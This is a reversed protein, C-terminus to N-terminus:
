HKLLRDIKFYPFAKEKKDLLKVAHDGTRSMFKFGHGSCASVIVVNDRTGPVFDIIFDKDPTSTYLCTLHKILEMNDNQIESLFQKAIRKINDFKDVRFERKVSSQDSYSINQHYISMKYGNENNFDPFGYFECDDYSILYIPFQNYQKFNKLNFYYVFNLDITFPLTIKFNETLIQNIWSGASLIM